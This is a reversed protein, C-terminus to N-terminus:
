EIVDDAIAMVSPPITLGLTKATKLNIVLEFKTPRLVPLEGPKEGKLVRAVYTAAQRYGDAFNIGYSMLGGDSAAARGSFM